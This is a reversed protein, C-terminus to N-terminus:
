HGNYFICGYFLIEVSLTLFKEMTLFSVFHRSFEYAHIGFQSTLFHLLVKVNEDGVIM